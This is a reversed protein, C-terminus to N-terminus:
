GRLIGITLVLMNPAVIETPATTGGRNLIIATSVSSGCYLPKKIVAFWHVICVIRDLLRLWLGRYVTEAPM